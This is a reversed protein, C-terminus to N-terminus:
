WVDLDEGELDVADIDDEIEMAAEQACLALPSALTPASSSPSLLPPHPLTRRVEEQLMKATPAVPAKVAVTEDDDWKLAARKGGAGSEVRAGVSAKSRARVQRTLFAVGLPSSLTVPHPLRRMQHAPM